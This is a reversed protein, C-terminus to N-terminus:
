GHPNQQGGATFELTVLSRLLDRQAERSEQESTHHAAAAWFPQAGAFATIMAMAGVTLRRAGGEDMGAAVLKAVHTDVVPFVGANDFRESGMFLLPNAHALAPRGLLYDFGAVFAELPDDVEVVVGAWLLLEHIAVTRVLNDKDGFHRFLLSHDHGAEAAIERTTIQSARRDALLRVTADVLDAKVREAPLYTRRRAM